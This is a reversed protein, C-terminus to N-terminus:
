ENVSIEGGSRTSLAQYVNLAIMDDIWDVHGDCFAFHVGGPHPSAFSYDNGLIQDLPIKSNPAHKTTLVQRGPGHHTEPNAEMLQDGSFWWVPGGIDPNGYGQGMGHLTSETNEGIALTKSTGDLVNRMRIFSNVFLIGDKYVDGDGPSQYVPPGAGGAVGFYSRRTPFETWRAESPCIYLPVGLNAHESDDRWTIWGFQVNGYSRYLESTSTEELFPLLMVFLGTGRCDGGSCHQPVSISAAAALARHSSEYNLLGLGIQKLNNVCHTRRAAERAAQVAPLLLAVLVGIIAIVVLLEVLTFGAWSPRNRGGREPAMFSQRRSLDVRNAQMTIAGFQLM